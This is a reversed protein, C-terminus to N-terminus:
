DVYARYNSLHGFANSVENLNQPNKIGTQLISLAVSAFLTGIVIAEANGDKKLEKATDLMVKVIALTYADRENKFMVSAAKVYADLNAAAINTMDM